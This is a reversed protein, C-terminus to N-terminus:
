IAIRRDTELVTEQTREATEMTPLIKGLIRSKYSHKHTAVEETPMWHTGLKRQLTFETKKVCSLTECTGVARIKGGTGREM